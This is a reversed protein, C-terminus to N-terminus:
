AFSLRSQEQYKFTPILRDETDNYDTSNANIYVTYTRNIVSKEPILDLGKPKSNIVVTVNRNSNIGPRALGGEPARIATVYHPTHYTKNSSNQVYETTPIWYVWGNNGTGTDGSWENNGFSDNIWITADDV